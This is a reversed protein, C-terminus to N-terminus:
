IDAQFLDIGDCEEEKAGPSTKVLDMIIKYCYCKTNNGVRCPFLHKDDKAFHWKLM